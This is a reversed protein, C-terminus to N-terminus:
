ETESRVRYLQYFITQRPNTRNLVICLAPSCQRFEWQGLNTRIIKNRIVGKLYPGHLSKVTNGNIELSLEVVGGQGVGRSIRGTGTWIQAADAALCLISSLIFAPFLTKLSLFM